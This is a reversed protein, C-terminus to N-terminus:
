VLYGFGFKLMEPACNKCTPHRGTGLWFGWLLLRFLCIAVCQCKSCLLWEIVGSRPCSSHDQVMFCTDCVHRLLLLPLADINHGINASRPCMVFRILM